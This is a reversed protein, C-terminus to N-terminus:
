KLECENLEHKVNTTIEKDSWGTLTQVLQGCNCRGMHGWEYETSTDNLKSSADRLAKILKPNAIAM